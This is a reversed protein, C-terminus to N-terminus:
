RLGDTSGSARKTVFIITKQQTVKFENTKRGLYTPNLLAICRAHRQTILTLM